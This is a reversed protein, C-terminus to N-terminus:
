LIMIKRDDSLHRHEGRRRDKVVVNKCKERVLGDVQSVLHPKSSLSTKAIGDRREKLWLTYCEQQGQYDAVDIIIM